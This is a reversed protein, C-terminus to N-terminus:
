FYLGQLVNVRFTLNTPRPDPAAKYDAVLNNYAKDFIFDKCGEEDSQDACTSIYNCRESMHICAGDSCTFQTRNCNNLNLLVTSGSFNWSQTGFIITNELTAFNRGNKYISWLADKKIIKTGNNGTFIGSSLTNTFLENIDLPLGPNIGRFYYFENTSSGNCFVTGSLYWVLYELYCLM